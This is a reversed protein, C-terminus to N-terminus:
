SIQVKQGGSKLRNQVDSIQVLDNPNQVGSLKTMKTLFPTM